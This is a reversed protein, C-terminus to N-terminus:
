WCTNQRAYLKASTADADNKMQPILFVSSCQRTYCPTLTSFVKWLKCQHQVWSGAIKTIHPGWFWLLQSLLTQGLKGHLQSPPGHDEIQASNLLMCCVNIFFFLSWTWCIHSVPQGFKMFNRRQDSTDSALNVVDGSLSRQWSSFLSYSAAGNRRKLYITYNHVEVDRYM